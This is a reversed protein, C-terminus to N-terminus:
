ADSHGVQINNQLHVPRFQEAVGQAADKQWLHDVQGSLIVASESVAVNIEAHRLGRAHRLATRIRQSMQDNVVMEIADIVLLNIVDRVGRASRAADEAQIREWPSAINGTLTVIGSEVSVTIAQKTVESHADLSQRVNQAVKEDATVCAPEVKLQNEVDRVYDFQATIQQAALKRRYSQVTGKLVVVGQSVSVLVPGASLRGDSLLSDQILQALQQDSIVM